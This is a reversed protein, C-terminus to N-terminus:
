GEDRRVRNGERKKGEMVKCTEPSPFAIRSPLLCSMRTVERGTSGM